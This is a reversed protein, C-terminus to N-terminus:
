EMEIRGSFTLLSIRANGTGRTFRLDTGAGWQKDNTQDPAFGCDIKGSFSSLHYTGPVDKTFKAEIRGSVNELTMKGDNQLAGEYEIRGSIAKLMCKSLNGGEVEISGNLTEVEVDQSVVGCEVSGSISEARVSTPTGSIEIRGNVSKAFVFARADDIEIAGNIVSAEINGTCDAIEIKGNIGDCDVSRGSVNTVTISANTTNIDLESGRPVCITLHADINRRKREPTIVKIQSRKEHVEFIVDNVYEDLTGEISIESREWGRVSVSGNPNTISVFGNAPAKKSVQIAHETVSSATFLNIGLLGLRHEKTTEAFASICVLAALGLLVSRKM